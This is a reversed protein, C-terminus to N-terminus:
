NLALVEEFKGNQFRAKMTPNGQEDFMYWTGNRKNNKYYGSGIIKGETNYYLVKKAGNKECIYTAWKNGNIDYVTEITNSQAKTAFGVVIFALFTFYKMM